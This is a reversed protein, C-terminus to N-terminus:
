SMMGNTEDRKALAETMLIEAVQSRSGGETKKTLEDLRDILPQPLYFTKTVYPVIKLNALKDTPQDPVTSEKKSPNPSTMIPLM